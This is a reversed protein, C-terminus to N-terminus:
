RDLCGGGASNIKAYFADLNGNAPVSYNVGGLTISGSYFVGTLYINNENDVSISSVEAGEQNVTGTYNTQVSWLLIGNADYKKVWSNSAGNTGGLPAIIQRYGTLILQNAHDHIVKISAETGIQNQTHAFDLQQGCLNGIPSFLLVALFLKKM